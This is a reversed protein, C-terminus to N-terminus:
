QLFLFVIIFLYIPYKNMCFKITTKKQENQLLFILFCFTISSCTLSTFPNVYRNNGHWASVSCMVDARLHLEAWILLVHCGTLVPLLTCAEQSATLRDSAGFILRSEFHIQFAFRLSCRSDMARNAM